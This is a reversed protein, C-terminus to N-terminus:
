PPNHTGADNGNRVPSVPSAAKELCKPPAIFSVVKNSAACPAVASYVFSVCTSEATNIDRPVTFPASWDVPLIFLPGSGRPSTTKKLLAFCVLMPAMIQHKRTVQTVRVLTHPVPLYTGTQTVESRLSKM